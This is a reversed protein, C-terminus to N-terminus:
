APVGVIVFEHDLRAGFFEIRGYFGPLSMVGIPEVRMRHSPAGRTQGTKARDLGFIGMKQGATTM